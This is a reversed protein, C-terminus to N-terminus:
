SRAPARLRQGGNKRDAEATIWQLVEDRSLAFGRTPLRALLESFPGGLRKALEPDGTADRLIAQALRLSRPAGTGWEATLADPLPLLPRAGKADDVYVLRGDEGWAGRYIM